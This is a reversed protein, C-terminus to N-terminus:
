TNDEANREAKDWKEVAEQQDKGYPGSAMCDPTLCQVYQGHQRDLMIKTDQKQCFPCAKPPNPKNYEDLINQWYDISEPRDGTKEWLDNLMAMKEQAEKYQGETPKVM